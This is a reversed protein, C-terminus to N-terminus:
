CRRLPQGHGVVASVAVDDQGGVVNAVVDAEAVRGGLVAPLGVGDVGGDGEGRRRRCTATQVDGRGAAAVLVSSHTMVSLLSMASARSTRSVMRWLSRASMGAVVWRRVRAWVIWCALWPLGAARHAIGSQNGDASASAFRLRSSVRARSVWRRARDSRAVPLAACASTMRAATAASVYWWRAASWWASAVTSLARTAAVVQASLELSCGPPLSARQTELQLATLTPEIQRVGVEFVGALVALWGDLSVGLGDCVMSGRVLLEVDAVGEVAEVAQLWGDTLVLTM